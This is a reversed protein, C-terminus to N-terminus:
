VELMGVTFLKGDVTRNLPFMSQVRSSSPKPSEIALHSVGMGPMMIRLSGCIGYSSALILQCAVICCFRTVTNRVQVQGNHHPDIPLLDVIPGVNSFRCLEVAKARDDVSQILCAMQQVHDFM